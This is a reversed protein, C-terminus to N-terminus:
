HFIMTKAKGQRSKIIKQNKVNEDEFKCFIMIVKNFIPRGKGLLYQEVVVDTSM